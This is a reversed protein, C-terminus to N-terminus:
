LHHQSQKKICFSIIMSWTNRDKLGTQFKAPCTPLSDCIIHDTCQLSGVMQGTEGTCCTFLLNTLLCKSLSFNSFNIAKLVIVPSHCNFIITLLFVFCVKCMCWLPSVNISKIKRKITSKFAIRGFCNSNETNSLHKYLYLQRVKDIEKRQELINM